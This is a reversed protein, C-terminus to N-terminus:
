DSFEESSAYALPSDEHAAGCLRMAKRGSWLINFRQCVQAASQTGYRHHAANHYGHEFHERDVGQLVVLKLHAAAELSDLSEQFRTLPMGHLRLSLKAVHSREAVVGVLNIMEFYERALQGDQLTPCVDSVELAKINGYQMRSFITHQVHCMEFALFTLESLDQALSVLHQDTNVLNLGALSLEQLRALRSMGALLQRSFAEPRQVATSTDEERTARLRLATLGTLTVLDDRLQGGANDPIFCSLHLSRLGTMLTRANRGFLYPLDGALHVQLTRLAPAHTWAAAMCALAHGEDQFWDASNCILVEQLKPLTAIVQAVHWITIAAAKPWLVVWKGDVDLNGLTLHALQTLAAMSLMGHTVGPVPPAPAAGNLAAAQESVDDPDDWGGTEEAWGELDLHELNLWSACPLEGLHYPGNRM